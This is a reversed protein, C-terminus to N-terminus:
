EQVVHVTRAPYPFHIDEEAFREHLRKIFASRLPYQDGYDPVRLIAVGTIQSEGFQKFRVAPAPDALSPQLERMTELAVEAAVHEVREL